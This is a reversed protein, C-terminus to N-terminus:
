SVADVMVARALNRTLAVRLVSLKENERESWDVQLTLLSVSYIEAGTSGIRCPRYIGSWKYFHSPLADIKWEV